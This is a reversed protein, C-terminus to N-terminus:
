AAPRNTPDTDPPESSPPARYICEMGRWVEVGRGNALLNASRIAAHDNLRIEPTILAPRGNPQLIRIEYEHM